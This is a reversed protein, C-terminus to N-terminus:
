LMREVFFSGSRVIQGSRNVIIYAYAIAFHHQKVCGRNSALEVLSSEFDYFGVYAPEHANSHRMFKIKTGLPPFRLKTIATPCIDRHEDLAAKNEFAYLCIDCFVKKIARKRTFRNMYAQFDSILALHRNELLLCHVVEHDKLGKRILTLEARRSKVNEINYVRICLRNLKELRGLDEWSVPSQVNGTNITVASANEWRRNSPAAKRDKLYQFAKIIQFVCDTAGSPNIGQTIGPVGKPYPVSEGLNNRLM